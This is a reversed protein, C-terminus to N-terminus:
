LRQLGLPPGTFQLRRQMEAADLAHDLDSQVFVQHSEEPAHVIEAHRSLNPHRELGARIAQEDGVLLFKIGEFRHRARAVGSLMVALGEDGGMADVAIWSSDAM